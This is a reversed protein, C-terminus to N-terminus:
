FCMCIMNGLPYAINDSFGLDIGHVHTDMCNPGNVFSKGDACCKKVCRIKDCVGEIDERCKRKIKVGNQDQDICYNNDEPDHDRPISDITEDVIVRCQALGVKVFPRDIYDETITINEECAHIRTNYTFGLPCCKPFATVDLPTQELIEGDEIEYRFFGDTSFDVCRGSSHDILFNSYNTHIGLRKIVNEECTYNGDITVNLYEGYGCCKKVSDDEFIVGECKINVFVLIVIFLYMM